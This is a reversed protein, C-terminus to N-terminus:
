VYHSPAWDYHSPAKISLLEETFYSILRVETMKSTSKEHIHITFSFQLCSYNSLFRNLFRKRFRNRLNSLFYLLSIQFINANRPLFCTIFHQFFNRAIIVVFASIFTPSNSFMSM